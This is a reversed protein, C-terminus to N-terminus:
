GRAQPHHCSYLANSPWSQTIWNRARKWTNMNWEARIWSSSAHNKTEHWYNVKFNKGTESLSCTQQSSLLRNNLCISENLARRAKTENGEIASPNSKLHLPVIFWRLKSQFNIAHCSERWSDLQWICRNLYLKLTPPPLSAKLFDVAATLSKRESKRRM